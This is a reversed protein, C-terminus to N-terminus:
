FVAKLLAAVCAVATLAVSAPRYIRRTKGRWTVEHGAAMLKAPVLPLFIACAFAIFLVVANVGLKGPLSLVISLVVVMTQAGLRRGESAADAYDAIGQAIDADTVPRTTDHDPDTRTGNRLDGVLDAMATLFEAHGRSPLVGELMLYLALVAPAIAKVADV